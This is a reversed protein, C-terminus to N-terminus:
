GILKDYATKTYHSKETLHTVLSRKLYGCTRCIQLNREDPHKENVHTRQTAITDLNVELEDKNGVNSLMSFHIKAHLAYTNLSFGYSKYVSLTLFQKCVLCRAKVELIGRVFNVLIDSEQVCRVAGRATTNWFNQIKAM